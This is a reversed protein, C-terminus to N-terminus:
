IWNVNFEKTKRDLWTKWNDIVNKGKEIKESPTEINIVEEVKTKRGLNLIM